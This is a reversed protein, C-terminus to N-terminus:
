TPAAVAIPGRDIARANQLAGTICGAGCCLFTMGETELDAM